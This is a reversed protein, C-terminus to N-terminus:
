KANFIEGPNAVRLFKGNGIADKVSRYGSYSIGSRIGAWIENVVEEVTKTAEPIQVSFSENFGEKNKVGKEPHSMGVYERTGEIHLRAEKCQTFLKGGMCASAGAMFAKVYDGPYQYGGDALLQVDLLDATEFCEMIETIQGCYFGTTYRTSCISSSTGIGLRVIDVGLDTLYELGEVTNVSGCILNFGQSKLNPLVTKLQPLYGNAIDVLLWKYGFGKIFDLREQDVTLSVCAFIDKLGVAKCKALNEVFYDDRPIALTPIKSKDLKSIAEIFDPGIISTMPSVIIRHGEIKIEQRSKVQGLGPLLTVDNYGLSLGKKLEAM